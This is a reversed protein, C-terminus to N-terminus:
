LDIRAAYAKVHGPSVPQRLNPLDLLCKLGTRRLIVGRSHDNREGNFVIGALPLDRSRLAEATLLTHNISGLYYSSVVVVPLNWYKLLDVNLLDDAVPALVGGAPEVVLPGDVEPLNLDEKRITIGENAAAADPAMAAQLSYAEPLFRARGLTVLRRVEETDTHVLGGAQIPKWYSAGLREVLLASVLTKGVSTGIGAVACREM